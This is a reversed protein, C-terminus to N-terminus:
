TGNMYWKYEPQHHLLWRSFHHLEDIPLTVDWIHCPFNWVHKFGGVLLLICYARPLHWFLGLPRQNSDVNRMLWRLISMALIFISACGPQSRLNKGFDEKCLFCWVCGFRPINGLDQKFFFMGRYTISKVRSQYWGACDLSFFWTSIQIIWCSFNVIIWTDPQHNTYGGRQFFFYSNTLQSSIVNGIHHSLWLGNMNWVVLCINIWSIMWRLTTLSCTRRWNGTVWQLEGWDHWPSGTLCDRWRRWIEAFFVLFIM